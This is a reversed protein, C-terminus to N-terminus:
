PALPIFESYASYNFWKGTVDQLNSTTAEDFLVIHLGKINSKGFGDEFVVQNLPIDVITKIGSEIPAEQIASEDFSVTAVHERVAADNYLSVGYEKVRDEEDNSVFEIHLYQEDFTFVMQNNAITMVELGKIGNPTGGLYEDSYVFEEDDVAIGNPLKFEFSKRSVYGHFDVAVLDYGRLNMEDPYEKTSFVCEIIAQEQFCDADSNLKSNNKFIFYSNNNKNHIYINTIDGLGDPDTVSVRAIFSISREKEPKHSSHHHTITTDIEGIKPSFEDASPGSSCASLILTVGLFIFGFVLHM